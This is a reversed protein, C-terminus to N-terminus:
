TNVTKPISAHTGCRHPLLAPALIQEERSLGRTQLPHAFRTPRGSQAGRRARGAISAGGGIGGRVGGLQPGQAEAGWREARWIAGAARPRGAPGRVQLALPSSPVQETQCLYIPNPWKWKSYVIFFRSLLTSPAANPYLQCIRAVLIAWNVGGLFGMVNSYIARSKARCFLHARALLPCHPRLHWAHNATCTRPHVPAEPSERALTHMCHTRGTSQSGCAMEECSAANHLVRHPQARPESDHQQCACRQHQLPCQDHAHFCQPPARPAAGGREGGGAGPLPRVPLAPM